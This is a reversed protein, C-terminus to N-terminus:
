VRFGEVSVLFAVRFLWFPWFVSGHGRFGSVKFGRGSTM